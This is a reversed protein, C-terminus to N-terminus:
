KKGNHMAGQSYAEM